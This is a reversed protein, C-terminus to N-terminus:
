DVTFDTASIVTWDLGNYLTTVLIKGSTAGAPVIATIQTTSSSSIIASTGNFLVANDSATASFNKGTIIVTTGVIGNAPAFSTITPENTDVTFDTASTITWNLGNFMTMVFIKGSTAGAPVVATIQTTSSSSIIASTGNFLVANDSATASFNKGTIIVTTGVIGNAPAFSTITPENTDVTFDTASTITWDLGNYLTTVLIKGSTAGAPVIATIQTTSSTSIIAPTGNFFVKNDSVTKSFNTGTITVITGAVGNTPAFNKLTPVKVLTWKSFHTTETTITKTAEDITLTPMVQWTNDEKKYAISMLGPSTSAADTDTYQFSLTVPKAFQTGEPTLSYVKGIGNDAVEDTQQISVTTNAAMAGQPVSVTLVGDRGTLQGGNEDIVLSTVSPTPTAEDNNCSYIVLVSAALLIASLFFRIVSLTKNMPTKIKQIQISQL